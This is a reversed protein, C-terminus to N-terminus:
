GMELRVPIGRLESEAFKFGPRLDDRDDLEVRIPRDEWSADRLTDVLRRSAEAVRSTGDDDKGPTAVVVVRTPAIGRPLRPRKQAGHAMILGGVLRTSAGWSTAEAFHQEGDRGLFQVGYAKAFNQGLYHSTGAQLAKRDRMLSEITLTEV